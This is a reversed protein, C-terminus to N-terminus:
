QRGVGNRDRHHDGSDTPLARSDGDRAGRALFGLKPVLSAVCRRSGLAIRKWLGFDLTLEARMYPWLKAANMVLPVVAGVTMAIGYVVLSGHRVLILLGLGNSVIVGAAAATATRRMLELGILGAAITGTLVQLLMSVCFVIILRMLAPEYGLTSALGLAAATLVGSMLVKMVLTNFVTRGVQSEHRATMKVIYTDSGLGAVLQFFTVFIIAFQVTGFGTDGM